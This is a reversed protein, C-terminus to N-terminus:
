GCLLYADVPGYRVCQVCRIKTKRTYFSMCSRGSMRMTRVADDAILAICESSTMRFAHSAYSAPRHVSVASKSVSPSARCPQKVTKQSAATDTLIVETSGAHNNGWQLIKEQTTPANVFMCTLMCMVGLGSIIQLNCLIAGHSGAIRQAAAPQGAVAGVIYEISHM